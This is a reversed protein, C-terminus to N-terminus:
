KAPTAKQALRREYDVIAAIQEKSLVQGFFPMKGSATGFAGYRAGVKAGDTVWAVQSEVTPFQNLVNYISPGMAGTGPAHPDGNSWGFTHCRACNTNFLAAGLTKDQNVAIEKQLTAIENQYLTKDSLTTAAALNAQAKKLTDPLAKLRDLEAQASTAASEQAKKVAEAQGEYPALGAVEKLYAILNDIQQANLPGGGLLGWAPMPSYPRGYTLVQRLQDDNMRLAVYRLAPAPWNVQRVPALTVPDTVTYPATGGDLGGHCGACNFGGQATTAFLAEGRHAFTRDFEDIGGAQRGPEALWYLPLGVGIIVLCALGFLQTRELRVGELQEDSYYPKRNPALEIEAGVEPRARRINALIWLIWGVTAVIFVFLAVRHQTTAALLM